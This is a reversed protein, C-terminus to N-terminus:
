SKTQLVLPLHSRAKRKHMDRMKTAVRNELDIYVVILDCSVGYFRLDASRM